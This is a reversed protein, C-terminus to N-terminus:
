LDTGHCKKFKKNSGCPCLDNRSISGFKERMKNRRENRQHIAIKNDINKQLVDDLFLSPTWGEIVRTIIFSDAASALAGTIPSICGAVIPATFRLLKEQITQGKRRLLERIVDNENYDSSEYWHRFVRGNFSDRFEIIEKISIIKRTYLEYLDPVGKKHLINEFLSVSKDLKPALGGFKANLYTTSYGDLIINQIRFKEQIILGTIIEICRSIRAADRALIEEQSESKIDLNDKITNNKLDFELEKTVSKELEGQNLPQLCDDILLVAQQVERKSALPLNRLKGEIFKSVDDVHQVWGSSLKTGKMYICASSTRDIIKLAGSRLLELTDKIGLIKTTAIFDDSGMLIEKHILLSIFLQSLTNTKLSNTDNKNDHGLLFKIESNDTDSKATYSTIPSPFNSILISSM